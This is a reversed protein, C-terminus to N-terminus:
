LQGKYMKHKGIMLIRALLIAAKFSGKIKLRRTMLKPVIKMIGFVNDKLVLLESITKLVKEEKVNFIITAAPNDPKVHKAQFDEIKSVLTLTLSGGLSPFYLEVQKGEMKPKIRKFAKEFGFIDIIIGASRAIQLIKTEKILEEAKLTLDTM